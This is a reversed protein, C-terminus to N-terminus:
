YSIYLKSVIKSATETFIFPFVAHVLCALSGLLMWGSFVCARKLHQLYTEDAASPHETFINKMFKVM